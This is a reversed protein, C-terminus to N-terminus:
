GMRVLLSSETLGGGAGQPFRSQPGVGVALSVEHGIGKFGVM